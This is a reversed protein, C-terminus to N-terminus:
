FPNGTFPATERVTQVFSEIERHFLAVSFIGTENFYWEVAVDYADARIPELLPNGATITRNSGSVSVAPNPNLSGLGVRSMVKSAAFRFLIDEYPEFVVNLSPLFDDYSVDVTTPTEVGGIISRGTSSQDTEIYRAGINGRFGVSGLHTNWDLQGWVGLTEEEVSRNNALQGLHSLPFVTEDYLDWASAAADMDPILWTSGGFSILNSYDAIPTAAAFGPISSEINATSNPVGNWRRREITEFEYDRYNVGGSLTFVDDIDFSIEGQVTTFANYTSQPRLRIEELGWSLPDTLDFGYSFSPSTDSGRFDYTYDNIFGGPGGAR